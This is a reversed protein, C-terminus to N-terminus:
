HTRWPSALGVLEGSTWATRLPTTFPPRRAMAKFEVDTLKMGPRPRQHRAKAFTDAERMSAKQWTDIDEQTAKREIRKIEHDDKTGEREDARSSNVSLSVVGVDLGHDADLVVVDGVHVDMEFTQSFGKRNAKFRVEVVDFPRQGSPLAVGELWDFVTLSGCGGVWLERQQPM